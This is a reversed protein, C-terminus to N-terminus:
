PAEVVPRAVGLLATKARFNRAKLIAESSTM